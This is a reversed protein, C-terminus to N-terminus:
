FFPDIDFMNPKGVLEAFRAGEYFNVQPFGDITRSFFPCETNRSLRGSFRVNNLM